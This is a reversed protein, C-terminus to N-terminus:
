TPPANPNSNSPPIISIPDPDKVDNSGSQGLIAQNVETVQPNPQQPPTPNLAPQSSSPNLTDRSSLNRPIRALCTKLGMDVWM